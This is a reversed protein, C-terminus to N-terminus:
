GSTRASAPGDGMLHLEMLQLLQMQIIFIMQHFSLLFLILVLGERTIWLVPVSCHEDLSALAIRRSTEGGGMGMVLLLLLKLLYHQRYFVNNLHHGMVCSCVGTEM